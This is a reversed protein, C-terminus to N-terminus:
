APSLAACIASFIEEDSNRNGHSIFTTADTFDVIPIGEPTFGVVVANAVIDIGANSVGFGPVLGFRLLGTLAFNATSGLTAGGPYTYIGTSAEPFSFSGYPSSFTATAAPTNEIHRVVLGADNYFLTVDVFGSVTVTVPFGCQESLLQSEFSVNIDIANQLHVARQASSTAAGALASLAVVVFVLLRRV